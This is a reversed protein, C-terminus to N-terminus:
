IIAAGCWNLANQRVIKYVSITWRTEIRWAYIDLFARFERHTKVNVTKFNTIGNRRM